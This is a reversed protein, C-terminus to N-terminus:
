EGENECSWGPVGRLDNWEDETLLFYGGPELPPRRGTRTYLSM